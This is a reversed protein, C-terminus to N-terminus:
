STTEHNWFYGPKITTGHQEENFILTYSRGVHPKLRGLSAEDVEEDTSLLIVQHSAVPFYRELLYRRHSSDLRGLPTDIITPVPRGSAKALGWLLSTALLQREGASLRDFPLPKGNGGRLEIQFTGPDIRLGTVLTRKRLLHSFSDLVLGELREAHKRIVAVRFKALTERVRASHKLVRTDHERDVRTEVEHGLERHFNRRADELQRSLVRLKDEQAALEAQKEQHKRRLQTLEREISAIAEEKPVRALELECRTLREQLSGIAELKEEIASRVGPLVTSRIHRLETALNEGGNLVVPEAVAGARNSRDRELLREILDLDRATVKNKKLLALIESDREELAAVLVTSKRAEAERGALQEAEQLLGPVLLFPAPGAAIERLLAKTRALEADFRCREAELESRLLYLEGGEQRFREECAALDKAVRGAENGLAGQEQKAQDLLNQLRALEEEAHRTKEADEGSQVAARKRRALAILDTDLRDVIDLGLLTHIATGLIEAAHEGEALDKIQEADFFFLHAIGSPLYGEIYEDWHESLLSNFEADQAVEVHEEIGKATERWSRTLRYYHMEGDVARRFRLEIAAGDTPDAGRHVMERLYERYGLKGRGSCRAKAGYLVLQVADLFTTKGGGNMGGFLIIPKRGDAPALVAEQKGGFIGFNKLAIADLIM